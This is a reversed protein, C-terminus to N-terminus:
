KTKVGRKDEVEKKKKKKGKSQELSCDLNKKGISVQQDVEEKKTQSTQIARNLSSSVDKLKAKASQEKALFNSSIAFHSHQM